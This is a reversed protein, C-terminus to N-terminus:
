DIKVLQCLISLGSPIVGCTDGSVAVLRSFPRYHRLVVAAVGCPVLLILCHLLAFKYYSPTALAHLPRTETFLSM